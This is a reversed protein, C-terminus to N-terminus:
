TTLLLSQMALQLRGDVTGLIALGIQSEGLGQGAKQRPQARAGIGQVDGVPLADDPQKHLLYQDALVVDGDSM